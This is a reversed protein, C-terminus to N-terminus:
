SELEPMTIPFILIKGKCLLKWLLSFEKQKNTKGIGISLAKGRLVASYGERSALENGRM